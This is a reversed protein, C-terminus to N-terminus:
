VGSPKVKGCDKKVFNATYDLESKDGNPDKMNMHGTYAKKNKINITSKGETGDKCTFETVIKKSTRKVVKTKCDKDEHKGLEAKKIMEKTYCQKMSKGSMGMGSGEMAEQMQKKRDEPMDKMAKRFEAMPDIKKGNQSITMEVEWLGPEVMLAHASLSLMLFLITLLKM